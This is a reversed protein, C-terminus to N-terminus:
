NSKERLKQAELSQYEEDSLKEKESSEAAVVINTEKQVSKLSSQSASSLVQAKSQKTPEQSSTLLSQFADPFFKKMITRIETLQFEMREAPAQSSILDIQSQLRDVKSQLLGLKSLILDLKTDLLSVQSHTPLGM